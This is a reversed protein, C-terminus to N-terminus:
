WFRKPYKKIKKYTLYSTTGIIIGLFAGGVIDAPYHVGLYIRSYAVIAAWLLLLVTVKKNSFLLSLFTAIGFSNAAHSSVFGYIGGCHNKVLHVTNKLLENHCPRYRGISNKLLVSLQDTLLITVAITILLILTNKQTEQKIAFYLLVAYLPIWTYKYSIWWMLSDFFANHHSNIYAFLSHDINELFEIM